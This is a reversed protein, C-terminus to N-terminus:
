RNYRAGNSSSEKSLYMPKPTIKRRPGAEISAKMDHTYLVATKKSSSQKSVGARPYSSKSAVTLRRPGSPSVADDLELLARPNIPNQYQRFEFHLHPTRANGSTGVTAIPTAQAVNDGLRVLIQQAHAYRTTLGNGHDIVVINGYGRAFGAYIVRGTGAALIPSGMQAPIDIGDHNKGGSHSTYRWGFESSIDSNKLRPVDALVVVSNPFAQYLEPEPLPTNRLGVNALAAASALSLMGFLALLSARTLLAHNQHAQRGMTM